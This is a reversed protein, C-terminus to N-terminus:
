GNKFVEDFVKMKEDHTLDDFSDGIQENGIPPQPQKKGEAIIKRVTEPDIGLTQSLLLDSSGEFGYKSMEPDLIQMLSAVSVAYQVERERAESEENQIATNLSNFKLDWPKDHQAFVKGWKFAVHIDFLMELGPIIGSRIQNGRIAATIAHRFFGGEGLGGSMSDGWGLLSKDLGHAACLRNLHMNVDEVGSVDVPSEETQINVKGGGNSWIPYIHNDVSSVHGSRLSRRASENAKRQLQDAIMNYYQAAKVPHAKGTEVGVFRDRKSANRRSLSLSLLSDNFDMWPDYATSMLSSGYSSTEIPEDDEIDDKEIDFPKMRIPEATRSLTTQQISFPIFKWPEILRTKGKSNQNQQFYHSFGALDGCRLYQRIFRPNTYFDDRIRVIGEGKKGYVRPAFYGYLSVLFGWKVLNQNLIGSFTQQLDTVIKDKEAGDKPDIFIVEGTKTKSSLAHHVHMTVAAENIPDAIMTELIPYQAIRATPFKRIVPDENGKPKNDLRIADAFSTGDHDGNIPTFGSEEHERYAPYRKGIVGMSSKRKKEAM